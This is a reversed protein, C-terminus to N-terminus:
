QAPARCSNAREECSQLCPDIQTAEETEELPNLCRSECLVEAQMCEDEDARAGLPSALVSALWLWKIMKM